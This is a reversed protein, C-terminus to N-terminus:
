KLQLAMQIQELQISNDGNLRLLQKIVKKKSILDMLLMEELEKLNINNYKQLKNQLLIKMVYILCKPMSKPSYCIIIIEELKWEQSSKLHHIKQILNNWNCTKAHQITIWIAKSPLKMLNTIHDQLFSVHRQNKNKNKKRKRKLRSKKQLYSLREKLNVKIVQRSQNKLQDQLAKSM